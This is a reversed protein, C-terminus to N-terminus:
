RSERQVRSRRLSRGRLARVTREREVYQANGDDRLRKDREARYKDRLQDPDFGLNSYEKKLKPTREQTEAM